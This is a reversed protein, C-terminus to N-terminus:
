TFVVTSGTVGKSVVITGEIGADVGLGDGPNPINTVITTTRDAIYIRPFLFYFSRWHGNLLVM